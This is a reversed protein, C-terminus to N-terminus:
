TPWNFTRQLASEYRDSPIVKVEVSQPIFGDPLEVQAELNQFYKFRFALERTKPATIERLALQRPKGRDIGLVALRVVGHVWREHQRVQTLVLSFRFQRRQASKQVKFAQVHLGTKAAGPTVIGRYFALEEGQKFVKDQLAALQTKVDLYARRDVQSSRQELALKAELADRRHKLAGVQTELRASEQQLHTLDYGARAKGAEYLRWGAVGLALAAAAVLWRLRSPRYVLVRTHSSEALGALNQRGHSWPDPFRIVFQTSGPSLAGRQSM